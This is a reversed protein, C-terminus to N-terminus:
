RLRVLFGSEDLDRDFEQVFRSIESKLAKRVAGPLVPRRGGGGGRGTIIHIVQGRSIRSHTTVFDKV